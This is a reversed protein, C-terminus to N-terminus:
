RTSCMMLAVLDLECVMVDKALTSPVETTYGALSCSFRNEYPRCQVFPLRVAASRISLSTTHLITTRKFDRPDQSNQMRTMM